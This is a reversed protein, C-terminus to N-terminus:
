IGFPNAVIGSAVNEIYPKTMVMTELVKQFMPKVHPTIAVINSVICDKSYLEDSEERKTGKAHFTRSVEVSAGILALSVIQPNINRGMALANALGIAEVKDGIQNVLNRINIGFGSKTIEKGSEFDISAFPECDLSITVRGDIGKPLTVAVINGKINPYNRTEESKVSKTTSM